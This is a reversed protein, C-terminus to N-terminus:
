AQLEIGEVGCVGVGEKLDLLSDVENHLPSQELVAGQHTWSLARSRRVWLDLLSDAEKHLPSQELV